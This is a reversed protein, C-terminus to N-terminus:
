EGRTSRQLLWRRKELVRDVDADLRQLATDIDVHKRVALEAYRVLLDAIREWEPVRPAARAHELQRRFAHLRADALLWPNEWASRRVPLDGTARYLAVQEEVTLLKQILAHAAAAHRTTRVVAM